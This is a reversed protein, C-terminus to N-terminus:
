EIIVEYILKSPSPVVYPLQETIIEWDNPSAPHGGDGAFCLPGFSPANYNMISTYEPFTFAFDDVGDHHPRLGLAHGIEHLVTSQELETLISNQYYLGLADDATETFVIYFFGMGQHRFYTPKYQYVVDELDISDTEPIEDEIVYHLDIGMSGDPNRVPADAFVSQVAEMRQQVADRSVNALHDVEIFVNKRLPSADEFVDAKMLLEDPIGDGSTDHRADTEEPVENRPAPMDRDPAVHAYRQEYWYTSPTTKPLNKEVLEWDIEEHLRDISVENEDPLWLPELTADRSEHTEIQKHFRGACQAALLDVLRAQRGPETALVFENGFWGNDGINTTLVLHRHGRHRHDFGDTTMTQWHFQQPIEYSPVDSEESTANESRDDVLFHIDLGTSGDPNEIPATAFAQRAFEFQERPCEVATDMEVSVFVHKRQPDLGHAHVLLDPIGDGSTDADLRGELTSDAPSAAPLQQGCEPRSSRPASALCGAMGAAGVAALGALLERRTTNERM